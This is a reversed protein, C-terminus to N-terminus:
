VGLEYHMVLADIKDGQHGRYYGKRRGIVKFTCKKYLKIAADNNERVELFLRKFSQLQLKKIIWELLYTAYGNNCWKPLICFTLIEAEDLIERVLIFGIPQGNISMVYSITGTVNFLSQFEHKQWAQEPSNEFCIEHVSALLEAGEVTMEDITINAADTM